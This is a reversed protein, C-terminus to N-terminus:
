KHRKNLYQCHLMQGMRSNMFMQYRVLGFTFTFTNVDYM